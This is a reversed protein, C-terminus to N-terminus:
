IVASLQKQIDYQLDEHMTSISKNIRKLISLFLNHLAQSKTLDLKSEKIKYVVHILISSETTKKNSYKIYRNAIRIVKRINKKAIYLSEKNLSILAIDIENKVSEIYLEENNEEFLIYSILEKNEKKFKLLRICLSQLESYPITEITTKIDKLSAAKM